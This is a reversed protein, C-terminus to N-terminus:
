NRAMSGSVLLLNEEEVSFNRTRKKNGKLMPTAEVEIVAEEGVIRNRQHVQLNPEM